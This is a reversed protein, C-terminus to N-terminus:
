AQNQRSAHVRKLMLWAYKTIQSVVIWVGLIMVMVIFEVLFYDSPLTFLLSQYVGIMGIPTLPVGAGYVATLDAQPITALLLIALFTALIIGPLLAVLYYLVGKRSPLGKRTILGVVSYFILALGLLISYEVTSYAFNIYVSAAALMYGLWFTLILGANVGLSVDFTQQRIEELHEVKDRALRRFRHWFFADIFFIIGLGAAAYWLFGSTAYLPVSSM